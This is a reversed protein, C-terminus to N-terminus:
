GIGAFQTVRGDRSIVNFHDYRAAFGGVTAFNESVLVVFLRFGHEAVLARADEVTMGIVQGALVAIM